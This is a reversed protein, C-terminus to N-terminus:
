EDDSADVDLLTIKNNDNMLRVAVNFDYEEGDEEDEALLQIVFYKINDTDEKDIGTMEIFDEKTIHSLRWFETKLPKLYEIIENQLNKNFEQDFTVKQDFYFSKDYDYQELRYYYNIYFCVYRLEVSMDECNLYHKRDTPVIILFYRVDETPKQIDVEKSFEEFSLESIHLVFTGNGNWESLKVYGLYEIIDNYSVDNISEFIKKEIPRCHM